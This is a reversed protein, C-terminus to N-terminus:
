AGIYWKVKKKLNKLGIEQYFFLVKEKNFAM